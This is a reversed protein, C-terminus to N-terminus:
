CCAGSTRQLIRGQGSRSPGRGDPLSAPASTAAPSSAAAPKPAGPASPQGPLLLQHRRMTAATAATAQTVPWIWCRWPLRLPQPPQTPQTPQPPQPPQPPLRHQALPRWSHQLSSTTTPSTWSSPAPCSPTRRLASATLVGAECIRQRGLSGIGGAGCRSCRSSSAPSPAAPAERPLALRSTTTPAGTGPAGARSSTRRWRGAAGRASSGSASASACYKVVPIASTRARHLRIVDLGRRWVGARRLRPPPGGCRPHSPSPAAPCHPLSPSKSIM